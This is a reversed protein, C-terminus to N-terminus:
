SFIPIFTCFIPISVISYGVKPLRIHRIGREARAPRRAARGKDAHGGRNNGEHAKRTDRLIRELAGDGSPLRRERARRLGRRVASIEPPIGREAPELVPLPRRGRRAIGDPREQGHSPQATEGRAGEGHQVAIHRADM